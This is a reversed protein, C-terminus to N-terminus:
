QDRVEKHVTRTEATEAEGPEIVRKLLCLFRDRAEQGGLRDALQAEYAGAMRNAEALVQEGAPTLSLGRERRDEASVRRSVLGRKELANVLVVFNANKIGLLGAAQSQSLGPTADVVKLFTFQAPRLDLAALRDILEAFTLMQARRLCYGIWDDLPSKQPDFVDTDMM